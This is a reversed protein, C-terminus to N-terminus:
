AAIINVYLKIFQYFSNGNEQNHSDQDHPIEKHVMRKNLCVSSFLKQGSSDTKKIKKFEKIVLYCSFKLAPPKKGM